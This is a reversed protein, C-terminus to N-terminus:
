ELTAQSRKRQTIRVNIYFVIGTRFCECYVLCVASLLIIHNITETERNTILLRLFVRPAVM